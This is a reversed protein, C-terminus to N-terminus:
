ADKAGAALLADVVGSHRKKRAWALPTAWNAGAKGPDAGRELLLVAMERHGWRAAMGLPTSCYEEDIADIEAGHDLLLKAKAVDGKQAMDHLLTVHHWTMHRANMGSELLFEAMDGHKFYYERGWKSLDPVRAGYQCLLEVLPRNQGKAPMMLVGEAWSSLENRALEPRGRLSREVFQFDGKHLAKDFQVQQEDQEYDIGGTERWKRTLGPQRLADELLLAIEDHGRDQAITLLSDGFPYAKYSPDYAGREVLVRVLPLHGERVAFHIPPTYNYQCTALEPRRSVLQTVREVDGDRTAVLMEWVETTTSSAGGHLTMRLAKRMEVPQIM